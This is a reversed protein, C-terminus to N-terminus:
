FNKLYKLLATEFSYDVEYYYCADTESYAIPAHLEEKLERLYNYLSSEAVDLKDAFQPPTGTAKRAIHWDMRKLLVLKKLM